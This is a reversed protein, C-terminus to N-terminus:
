QCDTEGLNDGLRDARTVTQSDSGFHRGNDANEDNEEERETPRNGFQELVNETSVVTDDVTAGLQTLEDLHVCGRLTSASVEIIISNGHSM